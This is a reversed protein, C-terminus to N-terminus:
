KPRGVEKRAGGEAIQGVGIFAPGAAIAEPALDGFKFPSLQQFVFDMRWAVSEIPQRRPPSQMNQASAIRLLAPRPRPIALPPHNEEVHGQSLIRLAFPQSAIQTVLMKTVQLFAHPYARIRQRFLPLYETSPLDM